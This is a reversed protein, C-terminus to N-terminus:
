NNAAIAAVIEDMVKRDASGSPAHDDVFISFIVQRGSATDVYGSLARSEGLTGTKAFLHDKLPADAFRSALTGDEGGVPLAAKWQAFWPQTAAYALLQVTARPTVLDHGSLGSGDYFVFDDGDLGARLLWQRVVWAGDAATANDGYRQALRRLMMEAHLNQSVKLTFTTDEALTPSVHEAVMRCGAGAASCIQSFEGEQEAAPPSTPQIAAGAPLDPQRDEAILAGHVAQAEGKVQIGRRELASKLAEAAFLAPDDIAIETSYPTGPPIHGYVHLVRPTPRDVEVDAPKGSITDVDNELKYYGTDPFLQASARFETSGTLMDKAPSLTLKLENDNISLASVPAGYGWVADDIGWTQGYPEGDWTRDNGLIPGNVSRIGLAAIANAADEIFQLPDASVVPSTRKTPTVYPIPTASLFADGDGMITILDAEGPESSKSMMFVRTQVRADPGILAM